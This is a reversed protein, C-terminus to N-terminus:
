QTTTEVLRSDCIAAARVVGHDRHYDASGAMTLFHSRSPYKVMLALDWLEDTPGILPKLPHASWVVEPDAARGVDSDLLGAIYADYAESGDFGDVGVGDTARAKMRLLNFMHIAEDGSREAIEASRPDTREAGSATEDPMPKGVSAPYYSPREVLSEILRSNALSGSRFKVIERYQPDDHFELFKARSPYRVIAVVDWAEGALGLLTAHADNMYLVDAGTDLREFMRSATGAYYKFYARRGDTGDIGLGDIVTPRFKLLNIIDFSESQDRDRMEDLREAVYEVHDAM